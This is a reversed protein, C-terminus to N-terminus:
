HSFHSPPNLATPLPAPPHTSPPQLTAAFMPPPPVISPQTPPLTSVPPQTSQVRPPPPPEVRRAVPTEGEKHWGIGETYVMKVGDTLNMPTFDDDDRSVISRIKSILGFRKPSDYSKSRTSTPTPTSKQDSSTSISSRRSEPPPPTPKTISGRREVSERKFLSSFMGKIWTVSTGASLSTASARAQHRDILSIFSNPVSTGGSIIYKVDNTVQAFYKSSIKDLGFDSLILSYAFKFPLLPLIKFQSNVLIKSQEFVETLIISEILDSWCFISRFDSGILVLRQNSDLNKNLIKSNEWCLEPRPIEGSLLWCINAAFLADLNKFNEFNNVLADGIKSLIISSNPAPNRLTMLVNQRWSNIVFSISDGFIFELNENIFLSYLTRLPKGPSVQSQIFKKVVQKYIAPDQSHFSLLLAHDWSGSACATEIAAIHDGLLLKHEILDRSDAVHDVLGRSDPTSISSQSQLYTSVTTILDPTVEGGNQVLESMLIWLLDRPTARSVSSEISEDVFRTVVSKSQTSLPAAFNSSFNYLPSRSLLSPLSFELISSSSSM